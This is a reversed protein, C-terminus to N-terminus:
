VFKKASRQIIDDVKTNIKLIVPYLFVAVLATYVVEPMIEHVLYHFLNFRARLLFMLVYVLFGYVFDTSVIIGLPLLFNEPFFVKHFLGGFFGAYMYLLAYFGIFNGFFIDVFLGCIFGATLGHKEGRMMGTSSTIIILCNPVIGAFDFYRFVTTQLLFCAIIMLFTVLFKRM